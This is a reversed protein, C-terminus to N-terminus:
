TRCAFPWHDGVACRFLLALPLLLAATAAAALIVVTCKHVSACRLLRRRHVRHTLILPCARCSRVRSFLAHVLTLLPVFCVAIALVVPLPLCRLLRHVCGIVPVIRTFRATRCACVCRLLVRCVLL